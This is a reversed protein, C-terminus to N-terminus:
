QQGENFASALLLPKELHQHIVAAVVFPIAQTTVERQATRVANDLSSGHRGPHPSGQPRDFSAVLRGDWKLRHGTAASNCSTGHTFRHRHANKM